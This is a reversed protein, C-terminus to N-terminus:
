DGYFSNAVGDKVKISASRVTGEVQYHPTNNGARKEWPRKIDWIAADTMDFWIYESASNYIRYTFNHLTEAKFDDWFSKDPGRPVRFSFTHFLDGIFNHEIEAQNMVQEPLLVRGTSLNMNTLYTRFDDGSPSSALDSDWKFVFNSDPKYLGTKSSPYAPAITTSTAPTNFGIGDLNIAMTGISGKRSHDLQYVVNKVKCGVIEDRTPATGNNDEIRYTMTPVASTSLASLTHISSATVSNGMIYYYPIGNVPWFSVVNSAMAKALTVSDAEYGNYYHSTWEHQEGGLDMQMSNIGFFYTTDTIASTEETAEALWAVLSETNISM